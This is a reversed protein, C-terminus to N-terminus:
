RKRRGRTVRDRWLAELDISKFVTWDIEKPLDAHAIAHLESRRLQASGYSDHVDGAEHGVQLRTTRSDMRLERDENIKAHRLGHFTKFVRRDVGAEDYLRGMRKQATDAPDQITGTHLEEFIYGPGKAILFKIIPELVEHLVFFTLSEETKYPVTTWRGHDFVVPRPTAIWVDHYRRIDERRLFALLGLRRGTVFGLIPLVAAMFNGTAIGAQFIRTLAAYDPLLRVRPPAVHKPVHIRASSLAFPVGIGECGSKLITKVKGLYNNVLTSRAMHPGEGRAKGAAIYTLVKTVDYNRDMKSINPPMWAVENVFIQLDERTYDTVPKDPILALFIATRHRLYPVEADKEGNAELLRRCYTEAAQSFLPASPASASGKLQVIDARMAAQTESIQALMAAITLPAQPAAYQRTAMAQAPLTGTVPTALWPEICGELFNPRVSQALQRLEGPLGSVPDTLLQRLTPAAPPAAALRAFTVEAAGALLRTMRRATQLPLAGLVVRVPPLHNHPDLSRPIRIQFVLSSGRRTLHCHLSQRM